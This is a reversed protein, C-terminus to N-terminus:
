LSKSKVFDYLEVTFYKVGEVQVTELSHSTTQYKFKMESETYFDDWQSLSPLDLSKHTDM